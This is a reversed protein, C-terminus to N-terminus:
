RKNDELIVDKGQTCIGEEEVNDGKTDEVEKDAPLVFAAILGSVVYCTLFVSAYVTRMHEPKWQKEIEVTGETPATTNYVVGIDLLIGTLPQFIAGSLLGATNVVALAAAVVNNSNNQNAIFFALLQAPAVGLGAFFMCVGVAGIPLFSGTGFIILIMSSCSLLLGMLIFTRKRGPFTDSLIGGLPSGLGTGVLFLSALLGATANDAKGVQNLFPVAWLSGFALLPAFSFLCYVVLYFNVPTTFVIGLQAAISAKKILPMTTTASASGAAAAAAAATAGAVVNRQDQKRRMNWVFGFAISMLLPVISSVSMCGRWGYQKVGLALPGQGLVGGGLGILMSWGTISTKKKAFYPDTSTIKLISIWGGGVFAGVFLRALSIVWLKEALAFMLSAAAALFATLALIPLPGYKDILIGLPIQVAAYSYFYSSALAGAGAGSLNFEMSLDKVFVSPATRQFFAFVFFLTACSWSLYSLCANHRTQAMEYNTGLIYIVHQCWFLACYWIITEQNLFRRCKQRFLQM